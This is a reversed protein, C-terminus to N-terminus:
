ILDLVEFTNSWLEAVLLRNRLLDGRDLIIKVCESVQISATMLACHAINGTQVEVGKQRDRGSMGYILEYGRDGPFITTVQGTVGAIAGSVIPIKETEAADQLKFRTDIADLCDLIVDHGKILDFLNDEDMFINCSIVRIQSNIAAVRDEAAAAKSTGILDERCLIQRNLNSTDFRDNDIVTLTGVGIRALMECAGGGLGGLGAVMVSARGLLAQDEPSLTERNRDYRRNLDLDETM